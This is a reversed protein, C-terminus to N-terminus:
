FYNRLFPLCRFHCCLSDEQVIGMKDSMELGDNGAAIVVITNNRINEDTNQLQSATTAWAAEYNNKWSQYTGGNDDSCITLSPNSKCASRDDGDNPADPGLSVNIVIKQGSRFLM